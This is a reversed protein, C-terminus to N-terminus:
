HEKLHLAETREMHVGGSQDIYMKKSSNFRDIRASLGSPTEVQMTADGPKWIARAGAHPGHEFNAVISGDREFMSVFGSQGKPLIEAKHDFVHRFANSLAGPQSTADSQIINFGAAADGAGAKVANKGGLGMGQLAEEGLKLLAGAAQKGAATTMLAEEAAVVGQEIQRPNAM